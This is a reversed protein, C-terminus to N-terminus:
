KFKNFNIIYLEIHARENSKFSFKFTNFENLAIQLIYNEFSKLIMM